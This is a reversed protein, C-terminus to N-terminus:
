PGDWYKAGFVTQIPEHDDVIIFALWIRGMPIPRIHGFERECRIVIREKHRNRYCQFGNAELERIAPEVPHGLPFREQLVETFEPNHTYADPLVFVTRDSSIAIIRWTLSRNYWPKFAVLWWAVLPALILGLVALLIRRLMLVCGKLTGLV